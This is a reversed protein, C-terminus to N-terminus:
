NKFRRVAVARLAASKHNNGQYGYYFFQYWAYASDWEVDEDTWYARPEVLDRHENYIEIAEVRNMLVGGVSKAWERQEDRTLAENNVAIVVTHEIDGNKDIRGFLYTEGEALPPLQIQM